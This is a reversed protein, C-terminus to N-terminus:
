EACAGDVLQDVFSLDNAVLSLFSEDAHDRVLAKPPVIRRLIPIEREFRFDTHNIKKSSRFDPCRDKLSIKWVNRIQRNRIFGQLQEPLSSLISFNLM